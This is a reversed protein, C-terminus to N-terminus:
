SSGVATVQCIDIAVSIALARTASLSCRLLCIRILCRDEPQLLRRAGKENAHEQPVEDPSAWGVVEGLGSLGIHPIAQDDNRIARVRSVADVFKEADVQSHQRTGTARM